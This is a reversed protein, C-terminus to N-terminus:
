VQLCRLPDIAEIAIGGERVHPFSFIGQGCPEPIVPELYFAALVDRAVHHTELRYVQRLGPNRQRGFGPEATMELGIAQALPVTVAESGM